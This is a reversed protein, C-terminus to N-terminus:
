SSGVLGILLDTPHTFIRDIGQYQFHGSTTARAQKEGWFYGVLEGRKQLDIKLSVEWLM